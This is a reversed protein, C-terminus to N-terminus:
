DRSFPDRERVRERPVARVSDRADNAAKTEDINRKQAKILADKNKVEIAARGASKGKEYLGVLVALVAGAILIYPLIKTWTNSFLLGLAALM